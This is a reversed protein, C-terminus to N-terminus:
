GGPNIRIFFLLVSAGQDRSDSPGDPIEATVFVRTKGFGLILKSEVTEEGGAPISVEGTSEKGLLILGGDLTIAWSVDEATEVGPNRITSSIKLLGGIIEVIDVDSREFIEIAHDNSWDSEAGNVDKAKVKIDYEGKEDWSHSTSQESGSPYPGLWGSDTGDDWDFLYYVDDGQPDETSASFTLEEDVVGNDPGSPPSPKSPAGGGGGPTASTTEDVYGYESAFVSAIVLINDETIDGYGLPTGDWIVSDSWTGGSGVTIGEDFAFDLLAQPYPQGNYNNWRSVIETIYVRLHGNYSSAENNEVTVGIDLEGNGLFDVYLFLDVDAVSRAACADYAAQLEYVGSQGGIVTRYKGDWFSAPYGGMGLQTLRKVTAPNYGASPTYHSCALTVIELDGVVQFIYLEHSPCYPCTTATGFEALVTHTADIKGNNSLEYEMAKVDLKEEDSNLAVAGFGSLLLVGVVCIPLIKRMKQGGFKYNVKYLKCINHLTYFSLSADYLILFLL